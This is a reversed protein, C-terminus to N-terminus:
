KCRRRNVLTHGFLLMAIGVAFLWCIPPLLVLALLWVGACMLVSGFCLGPWRFM